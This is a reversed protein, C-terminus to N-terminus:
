RPEPRSLELALAEALEPHHLGSRSLRELRRRAAADKTVLRAAVLAEDLLARQTSLLSAYSAPHCETCVAAHDMLSPGALTAPHCERCTAATAHPDPEVRRGAFRGALLAAADAHCPACEREPPECFACAPGEGAVAPKAHCGACSVGRHLADLPFRTDREHDFGAAAGPAVPASWAAAVHCEDCSRERVLRDGHPSEHCDACVRSIGIAHFAERGTEPDARLHCDDCAVEGHAGRLTFLAQDHAFGERDLGLLDAERGRHDPHCGACRGEFGGHFGAREEIRLGVDEHCALCPGDPTGGLWTHCDNCRSLGEIELHARALPGPSVVDSLRRDWGQAAEPAAPEAVAGLSLAIALAAAALARTM